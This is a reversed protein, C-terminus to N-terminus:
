DALVPSSSFLAVSFECPLHRLTMSVNRGGQITLKGKVVIIEATSDGGLLTLAGNLTTPQGSLSQYTASWGGRLNIPKDLFIAGDFQKGLIRIFDSSTAHSLVDSLLAYISPYTINVALQAHNFTATVNKAANMTVSCPTSTCDGSWGGFTSSIDPTATLNVVNGVPYGVSCNGSMCAINDPVGPITFSSHVSGSGSGSVTVGLSYVNTALCPVTTGGNSGNCSWSWPGTGEVSSNAGTTCLNETPTTFFTQGNASGCAGYVPNAAFNATYSHAVTVNSIALAASTGIVTAGETWNVFHYGDAPVATVTTANGNYNVAQSATGTLTGNGGSTFTITFKQIDTSCSADTGSNSGSCSWNWPGTDTIASATGTTCLNITPATGQAQGDSSSNGAEDTATATIAYTGEAPITLLQSFAGNTVAPIYTQNNFSLSVTASTITDSMTGSITLSKQNLTIDQNPSTIAVSPITNDFTITRVASTTNGALDTAMISITNIGAILNVTASYTSGTIGANQASATGVSM